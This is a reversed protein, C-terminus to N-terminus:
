LFLGLLVTAILMVISVSATALAGSCLTSYDSRAMMCRDSSYQRCVSAQVMNATRQAGSAVLSSLLCLIVVITYTCHLFTFLICHYGFKTTKKGTEEFTNLAMETCSSTGNLNVHMLLLSLSSM